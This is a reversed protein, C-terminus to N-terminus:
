LWVEYVVQYSDLEPIRLYTFQAYDGYGEPLQDDVERVLAQKILEMDTRSMATYENYHITRSARVILDCDTQVSM